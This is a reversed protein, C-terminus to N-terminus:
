DPNDEVLLGSRHTTGSLRRHRQGAEAPRTTHWFEAGRRINGSPDGRWPLIPTQRKRRIGASAKAVYLGADMGRFGELPCRDGTPRPIAHARRNEIWPVM